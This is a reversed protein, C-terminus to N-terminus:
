ETTQSQQITQDNQDRDQARERALCAAIFLMVAAFLVLFEGVDGLGPVTTAGQLVAVKGIVINALFVLFCIAAGWLAARGPM